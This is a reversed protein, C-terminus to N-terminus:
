VTWYFSVLYQDSADMLSYGDEGGMWTGEYVGEQDSCLSALFVWLCAVIHTIMLFVITIFMLREFGPGLPNYKQFSKLVKKRETIIKFVRLLKTLKILKYLRGIKALRIM